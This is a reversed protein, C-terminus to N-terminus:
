PNEGRTDSGDLRIEWTGENAADEQPDFGGSELLRGMAHNDIGYFARLRRIGAQRAAEVLRQLLAKGIGQGQWADGVVITMNAVTPEVIWYHALGVIEPEHDFQAVITVRTPDDSTLYRDVITPSFAHLSKFMIFYVTEASFTQSLRQLRSADSPGSRRLMLTRGNKLVVAEGSKIEAQVPATGKNTETTM